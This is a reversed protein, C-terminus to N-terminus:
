YPAGHRLVTHVYADPQLLQDATALAFSTIPGAWIILALCLALLGAIPVCEGVISLPKTRTDTGTSSIIVKTLQARYFLLSGSRALAILGLLSTILIVSMIWPLTPHTLAAQLILFKGIFGSLPPLGAILIAVVFFFAGLLRAQKIVPGPDLRDSMDDRRIAIADALLFFAAVAFTSHPLYYIGAAIGENTNLGFAILLSGISAIVLYAVQQRLHTSAVVGLIGAVLTILALPLLLGDILNAVPGAQEGFILTYVRLISYAGVKTMIAFLAAVPATTHAYAAPLWLYLPLLAAKLAFVAFLLLGAIRILFINEPPVTAVKVALDAMNLTGLVGYLTGVAFLFLTSGVLNIVVFHLGAKTRLRGGGHLLLSYSALLLIEFFVFLNFLDGTLFAGNLGFLQLQFLVHFHPGATDTGRIAYLLACLALLATIVLMWAALRDAVLVIGFPPSWNGLAYVLIEGNSVAHLLAVTLIIQAAVSTISLIRQCGINKKPLLLLLIGALLPLIVPTIILHNMM